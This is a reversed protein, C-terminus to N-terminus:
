QVKQRLKCFQVADEQMKQKRFKRWQVFTVQKKSLQKAVIDSLDRLESRNTRLCLGAGRIQAVTEHRVALLVIRTTELKQRLKCFSVDEAEEIQAM